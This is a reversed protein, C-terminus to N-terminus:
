ILNCAFVATLNKRYSPNRRVPSPKRFVRRQLKQLLIQKAVAASIILRFLFPNPYDDSPIRALLDCKSRPLDRPQYTFLTVPVPIKSHNCAVQIVVPPLRRALQIGRPDRVKQILLPREQWIRHHFEDPRSHIHHKATKCIVTYEPQQPTTQGSKGRFLCVPHFVVTQCDANPAPLLICRPPHAKRLM